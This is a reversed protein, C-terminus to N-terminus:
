MMNTVGVSQLGVPGDNLTVGEEENQQQQQVQDQEQQPEEQQLEQGQDPEPEKLKSAVSVVQGNFFSAYIQRATAEVDTSEQSRM